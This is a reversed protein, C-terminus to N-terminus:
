QWCSILKLRSLEKNQLDIDQIWYVADSNYDWLKQMDIHQIFYESQLYSEQKLIKKGYALLGQSGMEGKELFYNLQKDM